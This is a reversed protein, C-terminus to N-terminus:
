LPRPYTIKVLKESVEWLRKAVKDDRGQPACEKEKCDSFYKGTVHDLRPDLVCALTTQAGQETTKMVLTFPAMFMGLWSTYIHRYLDTQIVGPHLVNVTVGTGKLREALERTFLINALKSQAYARMSSYNQSSQLDEFNIKGMDHAKSSVNVIRSPASQKLKDLLLHTLLFHGLHNTGLQMEFGDETLLKPCMMVGANNILFEVHSESENIDKAFARVSALSALDLKKCVINKNDISELLIKTKAQECKEMDRCALIIRGGRKALERATHFGIGINAGTIIVTKGDIREKGKYSGGAIFRRFLYRFLYLVGISGVAVSFPGIYDLM